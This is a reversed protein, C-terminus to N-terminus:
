PPVDTKSGAARKADEPAYGGSHELAHAFVPIFQADNVPESAFYADRADDGPLFVAQQPRAGREAQVWSGSAGDVTRAWLGLSTSGLEANPVEIVISCVNKDAFYDAGTFKLGAIAGLTDFFFPDSRWGAFFRYDGATAVHAERATSVPANEVIAAGDDGIGAAEAGQLRRLTVTQTGDAAASARMRYAIDAIADGDTDIKIEYVANTAFPETTTVGAPVVSASPHVNM